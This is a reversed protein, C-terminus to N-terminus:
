CKINGRKILELIKKLNNNTSQIQVHINLVLCLGVRMRKSYNTSEMLEIENASIMLKM